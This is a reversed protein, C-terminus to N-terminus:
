SPESLLLVVVDVDHGFAVCLCVFGCLHSEEAFFRQQTPKSVGYAIKLQAGKHLMKGLMSM